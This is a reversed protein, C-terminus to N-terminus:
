PSGSNHGQKLVVHLKKEPSPLTAEGELLLCLKKSTKSLVMVNNRRRAKREFKNNLSLISVFLASLTLPPPTHDGGAPLSNPM